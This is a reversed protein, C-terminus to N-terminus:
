ICNVTEQEKTIGVHKNRLSCAISYKCHPCMPVFKEVGFIWVVSLVATMEKSLKSLSLHSTLYVLM